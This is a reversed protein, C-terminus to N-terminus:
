FPEDNAEVINAHVAWDWTFPEPKRPVDLLQALEDCLVDRWELSDELMLRCFAERVRELKEEATM